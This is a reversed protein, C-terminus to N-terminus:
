EDNGGRSNNTLQEYMHVFEDITIPLHNSPLSLSNALKKSFETIRPRRMGSEYVLQENQFFNKPIGSFSVQGDKMVVLNDAYTTVDEMSHTVMIVTVNQQEQISKVEDMVQKKGIPDLGATPEDLILIKPNSAIIGALAVRRMQGGSLELPSSDYLNSDFYLRHLTEKAIEVAIDHEVGFNIPGFAVDEIVTKAFLQNEPFQFVIGVDRRVEVLEKENTKATLTHQAIEISGSTPKLLGNFHRILTSKGSGTKGIIATLKHEPIELSVNNLADKEDETGTSYKHTLKNIKISM